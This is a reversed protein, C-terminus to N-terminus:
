AKDAAPAAAAEVPAAEVPAAVPAPAAPAPAAEAGGAVAAPMPVPATERGPIRCVPKGGRQQPVWEKAPEVSVCQVARTSLQWSSGKISVGLITCSLDNTSQPKVLECPSPLNLGHVSAIWAAKSAKVEDQKKMDIGTNDWGPLYYAPEPDDKKFVDIKPLKIDKDVDVKVKLSPPYIIDEKGPKPIRVGKNNPDEITAPGSAKCALKTYYSLIMTKRMEMNAFM